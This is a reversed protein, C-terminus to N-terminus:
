EEVSPANNTSSSAGLVGRPNPIPQHPLSGKERRNMLEIMQSFNAEM